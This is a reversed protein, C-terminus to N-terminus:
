IVGGSEASTGVPGAGCVCYDCHGGNPVRDERLEGTMAAWHPRSGNDSITSRHWLGGCTDDCDLQCVNWVVGALLCDDKSTVASESDDM